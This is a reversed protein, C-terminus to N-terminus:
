YFNKRLEKKLFDKHLKLESEDIKLIEKNYNNNKM